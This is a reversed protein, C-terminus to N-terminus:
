QWMCSTNNKCLMEIDCPRDIVIKESKDTTTNYKLYWNKSSKVIQVDFASLPINMIINKRM